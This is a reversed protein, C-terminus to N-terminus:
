ISEQQMLMDLIIQLENLLASFIIIYMIIYIIKPDKQPM